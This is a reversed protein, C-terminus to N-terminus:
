VHLLTAVLTYITHLLFYSLPFYKNVVIKIVLSLFKSSYFVIVQQIETNEIPSLNVVLSRLTKRECVAKSCYLFVCVCM